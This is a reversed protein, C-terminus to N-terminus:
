PERGDLGQRNFQDPLVTDIHRINEIRGEKYQLLFGMDDGFFVPGQFLDILPQLVPQTLGVVSQHFAGDGTQVILAHEHLVERGLDLGHLTGASVAGQQNHADIVHCVQIGLVAPM